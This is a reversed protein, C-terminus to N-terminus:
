EHNAEVNVRDTAVKSLLRTAEGGITNLTAGPDNTLNCEVAVVMALCKTLAMRITRLYEDGLPAFTSAEGLEAALGKTDLREELRAVQQMVDGLQLELAERRAEEPNGELRVLNAVKQLSTYASDVKAGPTDLKKLAKQAMSRVQEPVHEGEAALRIDEIKNLTDLSMGTMERAAQVMSMEAGAEGNNPNRIVPLEDGRRLSSVQKAKNRANFLPEGFSAWAAQVQVPSMQKRIRNAELELYSRDMETAGRVIMAGIKEWGVVKAAALRHAGDVLVLDEDVVIPQIQFQLDRYSATILEVHNTDTERMRAKVVVQDVDIMTWEQSLSGHTVVESM